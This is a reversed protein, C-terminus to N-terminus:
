GVTGIPIRAAATTANTGDHAYCEFFHYGGADVIDEISAIAATASFTCNRVTGDAVSASSNFDIALTDCAIFHCNDILWGICNDANARIVGNDWGFGAGNFMCDRVTVYDSASSEVDIAVDPGNATVLWTCGDFRGRHAGSALTCCILNNAGVEFVCHEVRYDAATVDLQANQSASSSVFRLNRITVNAADIAMTDGAAGFNATFAPRNRGNGLGMISIVAVDVPIEATLTEAHGPLVYIVDGKSATCQGIAYDLTAFPADPNQGYGAGDTAGSVGSGVFFVAGPHKELDVITFVGGPQHRSFLATQGM